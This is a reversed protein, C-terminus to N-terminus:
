AGCAKPPRVVVIETESGEQGDTYVRGNWDAFLEQVGDMGSLTMFVTGALFRGTSPVICSMGSVSELWVSHGFYQVSIGGDADGNLTPYGDEEPANPSSETMVQALGNSRYLSDYGHTGTRVSAWVGRPVVTLSAGVGGICAHALVRDTTAALEDLTLTNPCSQHDYRVVDMLKGDPSPSLGGRYSSIRMLRLLAGSRLDVLGVESSTANLPFWVEDSSPGPTVALPEWAETTPLTVSQGLAATTGKVLRLRQPLYQHEEKSEVPASLVAVSSGVAFLTSDAPLVPGYAVHGDALDIRVFRGQASSVGAQPLVIGYAYRSGPLQVPGEAFPLAVL